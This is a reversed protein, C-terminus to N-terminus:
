KRQELLEVLERRRYSAVECTLQHEAEQKRSLKAELEVVRRALEDREDCVDRFLKCGTCQSYIHSM